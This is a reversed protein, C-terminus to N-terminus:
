TTPPPNSMPHGLPQPNLTSPQTPSTVAALFEKLDHVVYVTHGLKALEAHWAHQALSLKQGPRKVEVILIRACPLFIVFDSVGAGTGTPKDMRSHVYKWRPWQKDCHDMIQRHLEKELPPPAAAPRALRRQMEEFQFKTIRSM